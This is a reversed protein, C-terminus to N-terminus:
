YLVMMCLGCDKPLPLVILCEIIGSVIYAIGHPEARPARVSADFRLLQMKIDFKPM